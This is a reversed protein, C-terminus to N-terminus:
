RGCTASNSSKSRNPPHSDNSLKAICKRRDLIEIIDSLDWWLVIVLRSIRTPSMSCFSSTHGRRSPMTTHGACQSMFSWGEELGECLVWNIQRFLRAFLVRPFFKAHVWERLCLCCVPRTHWAKSIIELERDRAHAKRKTTTQKRKVYLFFLFFHFFRHCCVVAAPRLSFNLTPFHFQSLNKKLKIINNHRTCLNEWAGCQVCIEENGFLGKEDVLNLQFPSLPKRNAYPV